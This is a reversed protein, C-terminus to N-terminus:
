IPYQCCMNELIEFNNLRLSCIFRNSETNASVQLEDDNLKLIVIM